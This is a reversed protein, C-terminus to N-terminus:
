FFKDWADQFWKAIKSSEPMEVDKVGELGGFGGAAPPAELQEEPVLEAFGVADQDFSFATYVNKMFSDRPPSCPTGRAHRTAYRDGLLWVNSGLGLDQAALAGVCQGSGSQTEGLNFSRM